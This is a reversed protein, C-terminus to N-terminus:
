IISGLRQFSLFATSFFVWLENLIDPAMASTVKVMATGVEKVM